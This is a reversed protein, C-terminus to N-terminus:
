LLYNKRRNHEQEKKETHQEKKKITTKGKKSILVSYVAETTVIQMQKYGCVTSILFSTAEKASYNDHLVQNGIFSEAQYLLEDRIMVPRMKIKSADLHKDKPASIIINILNENVTEKILKALNDM